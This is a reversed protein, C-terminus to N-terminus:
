SGLYYKETSPDDHGLSATDDAQLGCISPTLDPTAIITASGFKLSRPSTDNNTCNAPGHPQMRCDSVARIDGLGQLQRLGIWCSYLLKGMRQIAVVLNPTLQKQTLSVITQPHSM